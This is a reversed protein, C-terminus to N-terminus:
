IIPKRLFIRVMRGLYFFLVLPILVPILPMLLIGWFFGIGLTSLPTPPQKKPHTM